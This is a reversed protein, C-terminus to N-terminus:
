QKSEEGWWDENTNRQLLDSVAQAIENHSSDPNLRQVAHERGENADYLSTANNYQAWNSFNGRSLALMQTAMHNAADERDLPVPVVCKQVHLKLLKHVFKKKKGSFTKGCRGCCGTHLTQQTSRLSKKSRFGRGM